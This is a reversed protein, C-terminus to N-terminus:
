EAAEVLERYEEEVARQHLRGEELYAEDRRRADEMASLQEQQEEDSLGYLDLVEKTAKVFDAHAPVSGDRLKEGYIQFASALFAEVKRLPLSVLDAQISKSNEASKVANYVHLLRENSGDKKAGLVLSWLNHGEKPLLTTGEDHRINYKDVWTKNSRAICINSTFAIVAELQRVSLHDLAENVNNVLVDNDEEWAARFEFANKVGEPMRWPSTEPNEAVDTNRNTNESNVAATKAENEFEEFKLEPHVNDKGMLFGDLHLAKCVADAWKVFALSAPRSGSRLKERYAVAIDGIANVKEYPTLARFGKGFPQMSIPNDNPRDVMNGFAKFVNIVRPNEEVNAVDKTREAVEDSELRSGELTASDLDALYRILAELRRITLKRLDERFLEPNEHYQMSKRTPRLGHRIENCYAYYVRYPADWATMEPAETEVIGQVGATASVAPEQRNENVVSSESNDVERAESKEFVEADEAEWVAGFYELVAKALEIFHRSAAKKGNGPLLLHMYRNAIYYLVGNLEEAGLKNLDTVFGELNDANNWANCVNVLAANTGTYHYIDDVDAIAEVIQAAADAGDSLLEKYSVSIVFMLFEIKRVSLDDLQRAWFECRGRNREFDFGKFRWDTGEPLKWHDTENEENAVVTERTATTNSPEQANMGLYERAQEQQALLNDANIQDQESRYEFDAGNKAEAVSEAALNERLQEQEALLADFRNQAQRQAEKREKNARLAVTIKRAAANKRHEQIKEKDAEAKLEAAKRRALRARAANQIKNAAENINRLQSADDNQQVEQQQALEKRLANESRKRHAQLHADKARLELANREAERNKALSAAVMAKLQERDRAKNRAVRAERRKEAESLNKGMIRLKEMNSININARNDYAVDKAEEAERHRLHRLSLDKVNSESAAKDSKRLDEAVVRERVMDELQQTDRQHAGQENLRAIEADVARKHVRRENRELRNADLIEQKKEDSINIKQRNALLEDKDNSIVGYELNKRRWDEDMYRYAVSEKSDNKRADAHISERVMNKLGRADRQRALRAEEKRAKGENFLNQLDEARTEEALQGDVEKKARDAMRDVHVKIRRDAKTNRATEERKMEELTAQTETADSESIMTDRDELAQMRESKLANIKDSAGQKGNSSQSTTETNSWTNGYSAAVGTDTSGATEGSPTAFSITSTSTRLFNRLVEKRDKANDAVQGIYDKDSKTLPTGEPRLVNGYYNLKRGYGEYDFHPCNGRDHSGEGCLGCNALAVSNAGAVVVSASLLKM